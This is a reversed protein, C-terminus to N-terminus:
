VTVIKYHSNRVLTVLLFNKFIKVREGDDHVQDAEWSEVKQVWDEGEKWSGTGSPLV